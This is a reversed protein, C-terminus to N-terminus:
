PSTQSNKPTTPRPGNMFSLELYANIAEQSDDTCAIKYDRIDPDKRYTDKWEQLVVSRQYDGFEVTWRNDDRWQVYLSYYKTAPTNM